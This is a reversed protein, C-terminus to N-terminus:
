QQAHDAMVLPGQAPEVEHVAQLVHQRDSGQVTLVGKMRYIDEKAAETEWLLTDLWYRVKTLDVPEPAQLCVTGVHSDHLHLRDIDAEGAAGQAESQAAGDLAEGLGQWQSSNFCGRGLLKDLPVSCRQTRIIDAGANLGSIRQELKTLEEEPMLDIKNLLVVDAYAIQQQAENVHGSGPRGALQHSINRADVVTVIADLCVGSELEEDTWLAAAVPGPNALGTTEILISDFKSRHQMMTELAQVFDTKVSCCMCGNALEIVDQLAFAASEQEQMLAKEIGLEEGFENLIVAIRFGHEGCIIHNILTTKGAGLFGTILTVPVPNPDTGPSVLASRDPAETGNGESIPPLPVAEPVDEDSEM